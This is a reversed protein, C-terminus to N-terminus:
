EFAPRFVRAVHGHAEGPREHGVASSRVNRRLAHEQHLGALFGIAEVGVDIPDASGLADNHKAVTHSSYDRM